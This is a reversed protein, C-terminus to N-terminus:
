GGILHSPALARATSLVRNRAIRESDLSLHERVEVDKFLLHGADAVDGNANLLAVMDFQQEQCSARDLMGNILERMSEARITAEEVNFGPFIWATGNMALTTDINFETNGSAEAGSTNFYAGCLAFRSERKGDGRPACRARNIEKKAKDCANYVVYRYLSVGHKSDYKPVRLWAELLMIQVLDEVSLEPPTKWRDHLKKAHATWAPKTGRAFEAFSMRGAQLAKLQDKM